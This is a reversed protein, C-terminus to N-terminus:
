DGEETDEFFTNPAAPIATLMIAHFLGEADIGFGSIVGRNNIDTFRAEEFGPLIFRLSASM